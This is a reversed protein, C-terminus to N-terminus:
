QGWGPRMGARGVFKHAQENLPAYGKGAVRGGQPIPGFACAQRYYRLLGAGNKQVAGWALREIGGSGLRLQNQYGGVITNTRRNGVLRRPLGNAVRQFGPKALGPQRKPQHDLAIIGLDARDM